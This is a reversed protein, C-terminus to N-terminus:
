STATETKVKEDDKMFDDREKDKQSMVRASIFISVEYLILLPIAVLTQSFVDPPTIIAAIIFIVVIAHKRYRRM